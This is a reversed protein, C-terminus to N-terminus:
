RQTPAAIEPKEGGGRLATITEQVSTRTTRLGTVGRVRLIAILAALGIVVDTVALRTGPFAWRM